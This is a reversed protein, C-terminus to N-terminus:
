GNGEERVVRWERSEEEGCCKFVVLILLVDTSNKIFDMEEPPV